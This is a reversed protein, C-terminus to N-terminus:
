HFKDTLSEFSRHSHASWVALLARHKAKSYAPASATSILSNNPSTLRRADCREAGDRLASTGNGTKARPRYHPLHDVNQYKCSFKFVLKHPAPPDATNDYV